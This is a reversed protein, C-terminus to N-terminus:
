APREAHTPRSCRHFTGIYVYLGWRPHGFVARLLGAFYAIVFALGTLTVSTESREHGATKTDPPTVHDCWLM